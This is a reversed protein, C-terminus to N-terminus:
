FLATTRWLTEWRVLRILAIRCILVSGWNEQLSSPQNCVTKPSFGVGGGKSLEYAMVFASLVALETPTLVELFTAPSPALRRKLHGSQRNLFSPALVAAMTAQSSIPTGSATQSVTDCLTALSVPMGASYRTRAATCSWLAGAGNPM